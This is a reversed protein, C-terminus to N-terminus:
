ALPDKVTAALATVQRVLTLVSRESGPATPFSHDFGGAAKWVARLLADDPAKPTAALIARAFGRIDMNRYWGPAHDEWDEAVFDGAIDDIQEDTLTDTSM